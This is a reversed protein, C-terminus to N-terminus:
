PGLFSGSFLHLIDNRVEQHSIEFVEGPWLLTAMVAHQSHTHVCSGADRLEFSNWFLPTCQSEKLEKRPRRLFIRDDNPSPPM